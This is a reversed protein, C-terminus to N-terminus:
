RNSPYQTLPNFRGRNMGMGTKEFGDMDERSRSSEQSQQLPTIRSALQLCLGERRISTPYQGEIAGLVCCSRGERREQQRRARLWQFAKEATEWQSGPHRLGSAFTPPLSIDRLPINNRSNTHFLVDSDSRGAGQLLGGFSSQFRRACVLSWRPSGHTQSHGEGRHKGPKDNEMRERREQRSAFPTAMM